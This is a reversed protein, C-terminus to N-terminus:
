VQGQAPARYVRQRTAMGLTLWLLPFGFVTLSILSELTAFMFACDWFYGASLAADDQPDRRRRWICLFAGLLVSVFSLAGVFGLEEYAELISNHAYDEERTNGLGIGTLINDSGRQIAIKYREIRLQVTSKHISSMSSSQSDFLLMIRKSAETNPNIMFALVTLCCIAFVLAIRKGSFVALRFPPMIVLAVVLSLLPGRESTIFISVFALLILIYCIKGSILSKNSGYRIIWVAGIAGVASTIASYIPQWSDIFTFRKAHSASLAFAIVTIINMATALITIARILDEDDSIKVFPAIFYPVFAILVAFGIKKITYSGINSVFMANLFVVVYFILLLVLVKRNLVYDSSKKICLFIVSFIDITIWYASTLWAPRQILAGAIIFYIFYGSAIIAYPLVRVAARCFIISALVILIYATTLHKSWLHSLEKVHSVLLIEANWLYSQQM